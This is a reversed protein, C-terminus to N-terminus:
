TGLRMISITFVLIKIELTRVSSGKYIRVGILWQGLEYRLRLYWMWHLTFVWFVEQYIWGDSGPSRGRLSRSSM